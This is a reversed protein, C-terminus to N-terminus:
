IRAISRNAAVGIGPVSPASFGNKEGSPWHIAKKASKRSLFSESPPPGGTVRASLRAASPPEQPGSFVIRNVVSQVDPIQFTEAFPPSGCLTVAGSGARFSRAWIQGRKR